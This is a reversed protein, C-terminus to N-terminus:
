LHMGAELPKVMSPEQGLKHGYIVSFSLVNQVYGRTEKYPITEIWIDFPMKGESASLWKRVRTPGANYAAAALIRNGEFQRLLTNLYRSGLTINQSPNLLDRYSYRLGSKRATYRATAPMLQMLGLAGAPSKADPSFASEQRAIAFLLQPDIDTAEAAGAVADKFGLPFRMDLDDWHKITIMAQISKRYWGWDEALKATAMIDRKNLHRTSYFWESRAENIYSMAFFEKARKIGDTNAVREMALPSPNIPLNIMSYKHGLKDASLFGYFGRTLSLRTYIQEPSPFLPDDIDLQEIARARWYLWRKENRSEPPLMQLWHYAEAWQQNRLTERLMVEILGTSQAERTQQLISEVKDLKGRQALKVIINKIQKEREAQDFLQQADYVEWAAYAREPKRRTLRNIGHLIIEQMEPSQERFRSFQSIREPYRDVERYLSALVKQEETLYRDLYRALARKRKKIAKGHREWAIAPTLLGEKQWRSFVPNCADPQSKGVNWLATVQEFAEEEGHKLRAYLYHCKLKVSSIHSEYYSQYEHWRKKAALTQLWNELLKNGLATSSHALLFQDVQQYPLRYLRAKLLLYDLHPLLPYDELQPRLKQSYHTFRKQQIAMEAKKFLKRQEQLASYAGETSPTSTSGTALAGSTLLGFLLGKFVTSAMRQLDSGPKREAAQRLWQFQM